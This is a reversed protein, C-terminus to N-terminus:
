RVETVNKWKSREQPNPPPPEPIEMHPGFKPQAQDPAVEAVEKPPCAVPVDGDLCPCESEACSKLRALTEANFYVFKMNDVGYLVGATGQVPQLPMGDVIPGNVAGSAAATCEVESTVSPVRFSESFCALARAILAM